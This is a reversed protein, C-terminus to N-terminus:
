NNIAKEGTRNLIEILVYKKDACFVFLWIDPIRLVALRTGGTLEKLSRHVLDTVDKDIKCSFSFTNKKRKM